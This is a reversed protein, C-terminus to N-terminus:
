PAEEKTIHPTMGFENHWLKQAQAAVRDGHGPITMWGDHIPFYVTNTSSAWDLMKDVMIAAEIKMNLCAFKSREKKGYVAASRVAVAFDPAVTAVVKDLPHSGFSKLTRTTKFAGNIAKRQVDYRDGNMWSQFQKKIFSRSVFETVFLDYFKGAEYAKQLVKAENGTSFTTIWMPAHCCAIDYEEM